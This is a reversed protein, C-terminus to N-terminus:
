NLIYANKSFIVTDVSYMWFPDINTATIKNESSDYTYRMYDTSLKEYGNKSRLEVNISNDSNWTIYTIHYANASSSAGSGHGLLYEITLKSTTDIKLPLPFDYGNSLKTITDKTDFSVSKLVLNITPLSEIQKM